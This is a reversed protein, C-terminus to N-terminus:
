TYVYIFLNKINELLNKEIQTRKYKIYMQKDRIWIRLDFSVKKILTM